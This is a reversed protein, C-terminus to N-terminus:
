LQTLDYWHIYLGSKVAPEANKDSELILVWPVHSIEEEEDEEDSFFEEEFNEIPGFYVQPFLFHHNKQLM